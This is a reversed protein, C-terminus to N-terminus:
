LLRTYMLLGYIAAHIILLLVLVEANSIPIAMSFILYVPLLHMQILYPTSAPYQKQQMPNMPSSM